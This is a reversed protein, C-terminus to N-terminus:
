YSSASRFLHAQRVIKSSILAARWSHIESALGTEKTKKDLQRSLSYYVLELEPGYDMTLREISLSEDQLGPNKTRISAILEDGRYGLERQAEMDELGSVILGCASKGELSLAPFTEFAIKM